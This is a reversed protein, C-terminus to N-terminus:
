FADPRAEDVRVLSAHRLQCEREYRGNQRKNRPQEEPQPDFPDCAADGERRHRKQKRRPRVPPPDALWDAPVNVKRRQLVGYRGQLGIRCGQRLRGRRDPVQTRHRSERISLLLRCCAWRVAAFGKCSLCKAASPSFGRRRPLLPLFGRLGRSAEVADPAPEPTSPRANTRPRPPPPRPLGRGQTTGDSRTSTAHSIRARLAPVGGGRPYRPPPPGARNPVTTDHGVARAARGPACRLSVGGVRPQPECNALSSM